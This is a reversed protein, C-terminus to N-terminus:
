AAHRGTGAEYVLSTGDPGPTLHPHTGPGIPQPPTWSSASNPDGSGGYRRWALQDRDGTASAVVLPTTGDLMTLGTGHFSGPLLEAKATTSGDLPVAQYTGRAAISIREGPGFATHWDLTDTLDGVLRSDFSQGGDSSVFRWVQGCCRGTLVVIRGDPALTVRPGASDFLKEGAPILNQFRACTTAGRPLQCYVTVDSGEASPQNWAVHAIGSGDVAVDPDGGTTTLQFPAAAAPAALALLFAAALVATRALPVPRLSGGVRARGRLM